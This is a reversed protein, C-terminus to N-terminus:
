KLLLLKKTQTFGNASLRYFYVGSPFGSADWQRTHAGAPLRENVIKAVERGLIDYIKLTVFGSENRGSILPFFSPPITFSITTSPNFPNPYNQDLIFESPAHKIIQDDVATIVSTRLIHDTWYYAATQNHKNYSVRTLGQLRRYGMSIKNLFEESLSYFYLIGKHVVTFTDFPQSTFYRYFATTDAYEDALYFVSKWTTTHTILKHDGSLYEVLEFLTTDNITYTTDGWQLWGNFEHIINRIESFTWICSDNTTAKSIISYQATGTDHETSASLQDVYNASYGYTWQNGVALPLFDNNTQQSSLRGTSIVSLLLFTFFTFRM